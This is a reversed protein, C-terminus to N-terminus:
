PGIEIYIESIIENFVTQFIMKFMAWCLPYEPVLGFKISRISQRQGKIKKEKAIVSMCVVLIGFLNLQYMQGKARGQFTKQSQLRVTM